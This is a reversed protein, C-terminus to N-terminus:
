KAASVIKIIDGDKLIYDKAVRIKNRADIAYLMKAAIETHIKEALDLATSGEAMLIADPLISGSSDAYKNENEVPYVVINHSLTFVTENIIEHIGTSGNKKLYSSIYSLARKQDETANPGMVFSSNGPNYTIIGSKAAKRLALEIAGSCGIVTYDELEKRFKELADKSSKDMKNAAIVIPKNRALFSRSFRLSSEHNWSINSLTIGNEEASERIQDESPKFGSLLEALADIGDKKRSLSSMNKEIIGSLWNALEEEVMRIDEKQNFNSGPRGQIDTEGSLDVVLILADASIIDNLFQTGMGKGIHAGPILGAVDTVNIPIKRTGNDCLSNRPNCKIGLEKEPCEKTAYAIGLNPNITTFPYDAIDAQSLTMASFITSKGKNPAGILGLMM